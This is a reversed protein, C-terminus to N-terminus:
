SEEKECSKENLMEPTVSRAADHGLKKLLTILTAREDRSLASAASEMDREHKAFVTEILRRGEKTLHVVRARRDTAHARRELLGLAELRDVAATISGSTLHITRGITNVPLPGKHLLVELVGFDSFGLPQAALSRSAHAQVARWAKMLVLWLHVGSTDQPQTPPHKRAERSM